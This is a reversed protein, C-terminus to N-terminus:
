YRLAVIAHIGALVLLVISLPVHVLLWGHLLDYLQTQRRLQREEECIAELDSLVSHAAKPLSRKLGEFVQTSRSASALPSSSSDPRDLFPKITGFYAARFREREEPGIEDLTLTGSSSASFSAGVARFEIPAGAATPIGSIAMARRDAEAIL